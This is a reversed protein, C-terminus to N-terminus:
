LRLPRTATQSLYYLLVYLTSTTEIYFLQSPKLTVATM